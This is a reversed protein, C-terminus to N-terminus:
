SGSELFRVSEKQTSPSKRFGMHLVWPDPANSPRPFLGMAFLQEHSINCFVLKHSFWPDAWDQPEIMKSGQLLWADPHSDFFALLDGKRGGPVGMPGLDVFYVEKKPHYYVPFFRTDYPNEFVLVQGEPAISEIQRLIQKLATPKGGMRYYLSLPYAFVSLSVILGACTLGWRTRFFSLFRGCWVTVVAIGGGAWLWLVPATSSTYSPDFFHAAPMTVVVAYPLLFWGTEFLLHSWRRKQVERGVGLALFGLFLYFLWTTGFGYTGLLMKLFAFDVRLPAGQIQLAEYSEGHGSLTLLFHGYWPMLLVMPVALCYFLRITFNGSVKPPDRYYSRALKVLAFVFAAFAPMVGFFHTGLAGFLFTSFLFFHLRSSRSSLTEVTWLLGISCFILLSYMRPHQSWYVHYLSFTVLGLAALGAAGRRTRVAWLWLLGLAGTGLLVSPLSLAWDREGLLARAIWSLLFQLPPHVDGQLMNFLLFGLRNRSWMACYQIGDIELSPVWLYAVRVALGLGLFLLLYRHSSCFRASKQLHSM